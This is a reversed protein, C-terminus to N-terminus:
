RTGEAKEWVAPVGRRVDNLLAPITAWTVLVYYRPIGPRAAAVGFLALQTALAARYPGRARSLRLSSALLALHLLGSAYRLHRHSVLQLAYLPPSRRLMRGRRLILWCHEFMRVKRHYEDVLDRAPQEWAVAAPEVVARRGRQVLRYPLAFDHGFRPDLELYDDRRVAYIPGVGATISGFRSESGRLWGEYRAYVGERNTGAAPEYFHTGCVYAVTPDAFAEVLRRLADRRWLTNADSFAVVEASTSRVAADQAVVKGGRPLPLLRVRPERAAVASVLEDTRDGSADSPVIIELREPPYDLSLLNDLRREIVAEEDHAPVILAVTPEIVAHRVPRERLRGLAAALLPYGAHTWALAAMSGWFVAKFPKGSRDRRDNPISV